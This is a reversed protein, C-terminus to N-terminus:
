CEKVGMKIIDAGSFRYLSRIEHRGERMYWERLPAPYHRAITSSARRFTDPDLARGYSSPGHFGFTTTPSVCTQPLGLYMTCTSFCIRGQIEIPQGTARLQRINEIRELLLGGRDNGVIYAQSQQALLNGTGAIMLSLMILLPYLGKVFLRTVDPKHQTM